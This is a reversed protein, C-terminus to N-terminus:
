KVINKRGQHIYIGKKAPKGNLKRGDVAYWGDVNTSNSLNTTTVGTAKGDGFDLVFLRSAAAESFQFYARCAKLTRKKATHKLTNDSTMYYIDDNAPTDIDFADYYGIFKVHGNAREVTRDATTSSAVTVSTFVPNVIDDGGDWKIIYPVGAELTTVAEGFTLTVHTGTMTADVLTKATAGALPSGDLILDFPLCITNWAGDKFLTRGQLTVDAIKGDLAEIVGSNDTAADALLANADQHATMVHQPLFPIAYTGEEAVPAEEYLPDYSWRLRGTADTQVFVAEGPAVEVYDKFLTFGDGTANMKYFNCAAPVFNDDEDNYMDGFDVYANATATNGFIRWGSSFPAVDDIVSVGSYWEVGSNARNSEGSFALVRDTSNAYLYGTENNGYLWFTEKKFNRWELGDTPEETFEYLDYDGDTMGDVDTPYDSAPAALLRYGGTPSDGYGSINKEM